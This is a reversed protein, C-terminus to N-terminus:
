LGSLKPNRQYENSFIFDKIEKRVPSKPEQDPYGVPVMEVVAIGEPVKLIEKVKKADFAGVHVTGLGLSYAALCLNQMAIGVDFMFWDGKDTAPQGKFFGAKGLQACAVIVLPAQSFAPVAPNGAPLTKALEEKIQLDDVLILEWCQTNAWSPAFRVAELLQRLKEEPIRDSKYRRISRREKITQLVDM